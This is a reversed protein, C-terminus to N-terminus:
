KIPDTSGAPFDLPVFPVVETRDGLLRQAKLLAKEVVMVIVLRSDGFLRTVEGRGFGLMLKRLYSDRRPTTLCNVDGRRVDDELDLVDDVIQLLRGVEDLDSWATERARVCDMMGLVFRLGAIGREFGDEKLQNHQKHLYVAIAMSRLSPEVNRSSLIQEFRGRAKPDFGRWDTVVDYATSFFAAEGAKWAERLTGQTGLGAYCLGLSISKKLYRVWEKSRIGLRRGYRLSLALASAAATFHARKRSLHTIM